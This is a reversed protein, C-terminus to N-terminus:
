AQKPPEIEFALFEPHAVDRLVMSGEPELPAISRRWNQMLIRDKNLNQMTEERIIRGIEDAHILCRPPGEPSNLARCVGHALRRIGVARRRDNLGTRADLQNDATAIAHCSM